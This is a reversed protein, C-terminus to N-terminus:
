LRINTDIFTYKSTTKDFTVEPLHEIFDGLNSAPAINTYYKKPKLIENSILLNTVIQESTLEATLKM